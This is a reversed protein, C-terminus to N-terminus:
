DRRSEALEKWYINRTGIEITQELGFHGAVLSDPCHQAIEM